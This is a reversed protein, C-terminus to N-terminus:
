IWERIVKSHKYDPVIALHQENNFSIPEFGNYINYLNQAQIRLDFEAKRYANRVSARDIKLLRAITTQKEGRLIYFLIAVWRKNRLYRKRCTSTLEKYSTELNRTLFKMTTEM